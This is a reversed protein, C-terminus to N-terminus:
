GQRVERRQTSSLKAGVPVDVITVTALARVEDVGSLQKEGSSVCDGASGRKTRVDGDKRTM